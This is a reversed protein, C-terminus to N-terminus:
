RTLATGIPATLDDVLWGADRNFRLGTDAALGSLTVEFQDATRKMMRRTRAAAVEAQRAPTTAEFDMSVAAEPRSLYEAAARNSTPELDGVKAARLRRQGTRSSGRSSLACASVRYALFELRTRCQRPRYM